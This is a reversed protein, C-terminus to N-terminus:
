SSAFLMSLQALLKQDGFRPGHVQMGLPLQKEDRGMPLTVAPTGLMSTCCLYSGIFDSYTVEGAHTHLTQGSESRLRTASPSVPLMWLDCDKFFRDMEQQASRALALAKLFDAERSVLGRLLGDRMWGPGVKKFLMLDLAQQKLKAPIWRSFMQQYQYGVVEGFAHNLAVFDIPPQAEVLTIAPIKEGKLAQLRQVQAQLASRTAADCPLGAVDYSYVIRLPRQFSTASGGSFPKLRSDPFDKAFIELLLSLDGLHNAMPGCVGLHRFSSERDPGIDGFPVWGESLRIGYVGCCHSPYRISGGLDSGLELPTLGASLATAAGGSSGGPSYDSQEPHVCEAFVQNRCNWDFCATPVASRGLFILGARKLSAVVQADKKSHHNKYLWLGYTTREGAVAFADKLTMPLGALPPLSEGQARRADIAQAEAIAHLNVFHVAHLDPNLAEIRQLFYRTLTESSWQGSRLGEALVTASYTHFSPTSLSANSM